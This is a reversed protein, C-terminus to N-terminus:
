DFVHSYFETEGAERSLFAETGNISDITIEIPINPLLFSSAKEAVHQTLAIIESEGYFQTNISVKMSMIQNDTYLAEATVGSLNPFFNEIEAKFNQFSSLENSEEGSTPFILKKQNISKWDKLSTSGEESIAESIYVGGALNDKTSQEFIGVVIPINGIGETKRLRQVIKDAMKQGEALLEEKSIKTEFESGFEKKTYYDVSNMALGISIGGLEFGDGKKIMYDQELLSDLYIPNRGDPEVDGNDEPNLGEPNEESVRSLWKSTTDADIYQGEQFYYTDTAYHKQSLDMLGTEFAKLNVNSNLGLTIGRNLSTQYAGDTIIASYYDNSLQSTTEIEKGVTEKEKTNPDETQCASLLFACVAMLAIAKKNM